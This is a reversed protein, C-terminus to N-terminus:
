GEFARSKTRLLDEITARDDYFDEIIRQVYHHSSFVEEAGVKRWEDHLVNNGLVRIDDNARKQRAATIVGDVAADNINEILNRKIYGNKKLIKELTSRFMASAARWAGSSACLEAERFESIIDIPSNEPIDAKLISHPYFSELQGTKPDNNCHVKSLGARGCSACRLLEYIIRSYNKGDFQHERDVIVYGFQRSVDNKEFTTVSGCDPCVAKVNGSVFQAEM